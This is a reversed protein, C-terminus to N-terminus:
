ILFTKRLKELAKSKLKLKNKEIFGSKKLNSITARLVSDTIDSQGSAMLSKKLEDFTPEQMYNTIFGHILLNVADTIRLNSFTKIKLLKKSDYEIKEYEIPEKIGQGSLKRSLESTLKNWQFDTIEFDFLNKFLSKALRTYNRIVAEKVTTLKARHYLDNRLKHYQKIDKAEKEEIKNGSLKELIQFFADSSDLQKDSLLNNYSAYFKLGFEVANDVIILALRNGVEIKSESLINGICIQEIIEKLWNEM